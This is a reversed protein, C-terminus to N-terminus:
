REAPWLWAAGRAGSADGHVPRRVEIRCHDAFVHPAILGPLVDYLHPMKSLGGGLVIVDPDLINVVHALARALRDAHRDLSAAAAADGNHGAREIDVASVAQGTAARHDREVGSGSVWLEICGQRGCWCPPGPSEGPGAWPLPNHGWEGGIHHRGLLPTRNCVVGGGCGTGLIVGFVNRANRGAGDVAESLAFCNADNALKVPRALARELDGAFNRGNLWTSNANQVVGTAPSVSGPMGIGVTGKVGAETEIGSVHGVIAAIVARYDGAPTASRREAVVRGDGTMAIAAIKSGGLDIGIRLHESM